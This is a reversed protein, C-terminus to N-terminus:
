TYTQIDIEKVREATTKTKITLTVYYKSQFCM